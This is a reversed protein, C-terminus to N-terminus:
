GASVDVDFTVKAGKLYQRGGPRLPTYSVEYAGSYCMGSGWDGRSASLVAIVADVLCQLRVEVEESRDHSVRPEIVVRVTGSFSRFKERLMNSIKECYVYVVPYRIPRREAMEANIQGGVVQDGEFRETRLNMVSAVEHLRLQLGAEGALRGVVQETVLASVFM